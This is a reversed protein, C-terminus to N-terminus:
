SEKNESKLDTNNTLAKEKNNTLSKEKEDSKTFLRKICCLLLEGGHVLNISQVISSPEEGTKETISLAWLNSVAIFALCYIIIAKMFLGRKVCNKTFLVISFLIIQIIIVLAILLIGFNSKIYEILFNM